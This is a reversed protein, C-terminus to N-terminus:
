HEASASLKGFLDFDDVCEEEQGGFGDYIKDVEGLLIVDLLLVLV